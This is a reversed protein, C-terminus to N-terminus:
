RPGFPNGAGRRAYVAASVGVSALAALLYAWVGVWQLGLGVCLFFAAFTLSGLVVGRALNAAAEGGAERHTFVALILVFTPFPAILGSMQPGILGAIQTMALVFAASVTMRLPLDWQPIAILLM